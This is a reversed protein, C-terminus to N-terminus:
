SSNRLTQAILCIETWIKLIKTNSLKLVQGVEEQTLGTKLQTILLRQEENLKQESFIQWQQPTLGLNHETLSIALWQQVLEPQTKIAFGRWAHYIVKERLQSTKQPSLNLRKAITEPSLGQLYLNLWEVAQNDIKKALYASLEQQVVLRLTTIEQRQQENQYMEVSPRDSLHITSNDGNSVEESVIRILETAPISTIGGRTERKLFNIFRHAILPKNQIIRLCYEELTALLLNNRLNNNPVSQSLWQLQDLLYRDSKLMEMIVEQLIDIVTAARDRSNDIWIQIKNKVLPLSSLRNMLNKYAISSPVDLYRTQLILYRFELGKVAIALEQSDLQAFRNPSDGLLWDIINQRKNVSMTPYDNILRNEWQNRLEDLVTM